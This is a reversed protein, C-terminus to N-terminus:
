QVITRVENESVNLAILVSFDKTYGWFGTEKGEIDLIKEADPWVVNTVVIGDTKWHFSPALSKGKEIPATLHSGSGVKFDAAIWYNSGGHFDTDSARFSVSAFSCASLILLCLLKLFM